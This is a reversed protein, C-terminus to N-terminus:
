VSHISYERGTPKFAGRIEGEDDLGWYDGALDAVEKGFIEQAMNRLNGVFGTAFVIVDAPLTTGDAFALGTPIYSVSLSDSKIQVQSVTLLFYTTLFFNLLTFSHHSLPPCRSICIRYIPHRVLGRVINECNGVDM